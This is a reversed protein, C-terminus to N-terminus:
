RTSARAMSLLLVGLPVKRAGPGRSEARELAGPDLDIRFAEEVDNRTRARMALAM